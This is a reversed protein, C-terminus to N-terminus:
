SYKLDSVKNWEGDYIEVAIKYGDHVYDKPRIVCYGIVLKSENYMQLIFGTNNTLATSTMGSSNYPEM